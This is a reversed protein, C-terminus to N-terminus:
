KTPAPIKCHLDVCCFNEGYHGTRSELVADEPSRDQHLRNKVTFFNIREGEMMHQLSQTSLDPILILMEMIVEVLM